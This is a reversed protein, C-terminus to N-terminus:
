FPHLSFSTQVHFPEVSSCEPPEQAAAAAAVPPLHHNCCPWCGATCGPGALRRLYAGVLEEEEEPSSCSVSGVIGEAIGAIDQPLEGVIGRATCPHGHSGRDVTDEEGVIGVTGAATDHKDLTGEEEVVGAANGTGEEATDVLNGAARDVPSDGVEAAGPSGM